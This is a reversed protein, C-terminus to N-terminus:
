SGTANSDGRAIAEMAPRIMRIFEEVIEARRQPAVDSDFVLQVQAAGFLRPFPSHAVTEIETMDRCRRGDSLLLFNEVTLRSASDMRDRDFDYEMGDVTANFDKWQVPTKTRLTWGQAPYCVPPYHGLIDRADKVQVLLFTVTEETDMNRYRRSLIVNPHLIQIAAQPVPADVGLWAGFVPPLSQVTTRVNEHYRNAAAAPVAFLPKDILVGVLILLTLIYPGFRRM